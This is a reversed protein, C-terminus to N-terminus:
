FNSEFEIEISSSRRVYTRIAVNKDELANEEEDPDPCIGIWFFFDQIPQCIIDCSTCAKQLNFFSTGYEKEVREERSVKM